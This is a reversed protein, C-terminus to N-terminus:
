NCSFRIADPLNKTAQLWDAAARKCDTAGVLCQKSFGAGSEKGNYKACKDKSLPFIPGIDYKASHGAGCGAAATLLAAAVVLRPGRRRRPKSALKNIM